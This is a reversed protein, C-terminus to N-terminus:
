VVDLLFFALHEPGRAADEAALLQLLESCQHPLHLRVREGPRRALTKQGECASRYLAATCQLRRTRRTTGRTANVSEATAILPHPGVGVAGSFPAGYLWLSRWSPVPASATDPLVM